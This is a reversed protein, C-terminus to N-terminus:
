SQRLSKEGLEMSKTLCGIGICGAFRLRKGTIRRASGYRSLLRESEEVDIVNSDSSLSRFKM